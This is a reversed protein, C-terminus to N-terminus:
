KRTKVFHSVSVGKALSNHPNYTLFRTHPVHRGKTGDGDVLTNSPLASRCHKGLANVLHTLAFVSEELPSEARVM